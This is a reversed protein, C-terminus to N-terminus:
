ILNQQFSSSAIRVNALISHTAQAVMIKHKSSTHVSLTTGIWGKVVMEMNNQSLNSTEINDFRKLGVGEGDKM